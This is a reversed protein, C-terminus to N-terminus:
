TKPWIPDSSQNGHCCISGMSNYHPFDQSWELEKMKSQNKKIRVPLSSLWLMESPNLFRCSGVLSMPTLQGQADQFIGMFKYHFFDQSWELEKMKSQNKKIRVPLSSLWLMESPNLFRCSGVLSIPTLQGQADQFIGMFKYHFFHQSWEVATMKSADEENKCTFLVIIFYQVLKFKPLIGDGVKSKAARSGGWFWHYHQSRELAKIKSQIKKM